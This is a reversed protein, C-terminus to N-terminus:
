ECSFFQTPSEGIAEKWQSDCVCCGIIKMDKEFSLNWFSHIPSKLKDYVSENVPKEKFWFVSEISGGGGDTLSFTTLNQRWETRTDELPHRFLEALVWAGQEVPRDLAKLVLCSEIRLPRNTEVIKWALLYVRGAADAGQIAKAITELDWNDPLERAQSTLNPEEADAVATVSGLTFAAGILSRRTLEAM